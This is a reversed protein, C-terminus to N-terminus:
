KDHYFIIRQSTAELTTKSFMWAMRISNKHIQNKRDPLKEKPNHFPMVTHRSTPTNEDM